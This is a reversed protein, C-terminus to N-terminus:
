PIAFLLFLNTMGLPQILIKIEDTRQVSTLIYINIIFLGILGFAILKNIKM